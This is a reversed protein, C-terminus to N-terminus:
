AAGGPVEAHAFLARAAREVQAAVTQSISIDQEQKIVNRMMAAIQANPRTRWRGGERSLWVRESALYAVKTEQTMPCMLSPSISLAAALHHPSNKHGAIRKNLASIRTEIRYLRNFTELEHLFEDLTTM